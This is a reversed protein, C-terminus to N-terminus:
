AVCGVVLCSALLGVLRSGNKSTRSPRETALTMCQLVVCDVAWSVCRLVICLLGLVIGHAGRYYASTLTRFREQGATDWIQCCFVHFCAVVSLVVTLKLRKGRFNFMKVKLDVGVVMM